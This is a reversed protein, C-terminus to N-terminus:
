TQVRITDTGSPEFIGGSFCSNTINAGGRLGPEYLHLWCFGARFVSEVFCTEKFNQNPNKFVHTEQLQVRSDREELSLVPSIFHAPTKKELCM